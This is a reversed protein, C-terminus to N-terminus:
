NTKTEGSTLTFKIPLNLKVAVPKGDQKGPNWKPMAEVVRKAEEDCGNGIGKVVIINSVKGDAEILFSLFVMGQIGADKAKKPYKLNKNLYKMLADEGGPFLPMVQAYPYVTREKSITDSKVDTSQNTQSMAAGNLLVMVVMLRMVKKM